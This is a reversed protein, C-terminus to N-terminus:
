VPQRYYLFGPETALHSACKADLDWGLHALTAISSGRCCLVTFVEVSM